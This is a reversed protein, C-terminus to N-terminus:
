NAQQTNDYADTREGSRDNKKEVEMHKEEREGVCVYVCVREIERGRKGQLIDHIPSPLQCM